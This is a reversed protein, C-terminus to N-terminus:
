RSSSQINFLGILILSILANNLSLMDTILRRAYGIFSLRIQKDGDNHFRSVPCTMDDRNSINCLGSFCNRGIDPDLGPPLLCRPYLLM